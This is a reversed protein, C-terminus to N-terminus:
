AADSGGNGTAEGFVTGRHDNVVDGSRVDRLLESVLDISRALSAGYSDLRVHGRDHLPASEDLLGHLPEALQVDQHQVCSERFTLGQRVERLVHKVLLERDVHLHRQEHRLSRCLIQGNTRAQSDGGGVRRQSGVPPRTM